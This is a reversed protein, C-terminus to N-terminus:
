TEYGAPLLALIIRRGIVLWPEAEMLAVRSFGAVLVALGIWYLRHVRGRVWVDHAMAAFLPLLWLGLIALPGASFAFRAAGPFILAVAALIMLRRHSERERRARIGAIFFISFLLMDGIPLVLFGAAEDLTMAGTTVNMTPVAFAILAGFALLAFGYYIGLKGLRQHVGVRRRYV